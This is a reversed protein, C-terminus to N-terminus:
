ARAMSGVFEERRMEIRRSAGSGFRWLWPVVGDALRPLDNWWDHWLEHWLAVRALGQAM